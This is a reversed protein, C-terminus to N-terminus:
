NIDIINSTGEQMNGFGKSDVSVVFADPGLNIGDNDFTKRATNRSPRLEISYNEFKAGENKTFQRGDFLLTKCGFIWNLKDILWDPPVYSSHLIFEWINFPKSDLLKMGLEQEEHFTDKSAPQKYRLKGLVRIRPNFGSAWIIDAYIGACKYELLVSDEHLDKFYIPESILTQLVPNGLEMKLFYCDDKLGVGNFSKEYVFMGPDLDNEAVQNMTHTAYVIEHKNIVKIKIPAFNSQVQINISDLKHFPQAYKMYSEHEQLSELHFYEDFFKTLYNPTSVPNYEHFKVPLASSIYLKNAM